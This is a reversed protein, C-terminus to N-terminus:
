DETRERAEIFVRTIEPYASKIDKKLQRVVMEVERASMEDRWDLSLNLLIDRPGLHMTLLKNIGVVDHIAEAKARIGHIVANSAAEGYLLGKTEIALLVATGALIIGIVISAAADLEPMGLTQAAFVGILAAILGLMAASDEFFVTFIVPDKSIRVAEMWGMDGKSKKFERFAVWWSFGEFIIAMSLVIYNIYAKRIPEPDQLKHIGEYISIGAGLGFILIAVVFSWFYLAMGYGFPHKADAPKKAQKMGFLLLFQNGTDVLSHVAESFMASSGTLTSATFKTVAILSNGILAAYVVKKSGHAEM